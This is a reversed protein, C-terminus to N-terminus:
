WSGHGTVIPVLHGSTCGGFGLEHVDVLGKKTALLTMSPYDCASRPLLGIFFTGGQIRLTSPTPLHQRQTQGTLRITYGGPSAVFGYVVGDSRADILEFEAPNLFRGCIGYWRGALVLGGNVIGDVGHSGKLSWLSWPQGDITGAAVKVDGATYAAAPRGSAFQTPGPNCGLLSALPEDGSYSWSGNSATVAVDHGLQCTGFTLNHTASDAAAASGRLTVSHYACASKSLAAIFVSVGALRVIHPAQMAHPPTMSVTIRGPYALYGYAIGPSGADVLEAELVNPFGVCMGYWRGSLVLGGDELATPERMGKEAWVSWPHGAVTGSAVEKAAGTHDAAPGGSTAAVVRPSCSSAYGLSAYQRAQTSAGTGSGAAVNGTAQRFIPSVALSAIVAVAAAAAAPALWRHWGRRLRPSSGVGLDVLARLDQDAVTRGVADLADTLRDETGSM